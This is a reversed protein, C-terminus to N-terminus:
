DTDEHNHQILNHQQQWESVSLSPSANIVWRTGDTEIELSRPLISAVLQAYKIPSEIRMSEIVTEGHITWDQYLHDYFLSQIKNLSGKPRGAPNGSQGKTFGNYKTTSEVKTLEGANIPTCGNITYKDIVESATQEQPAKQVTEPSYTEKTKNATQSMTNM